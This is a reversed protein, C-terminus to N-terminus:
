DVMIAEYFIDLLEENAYYENGMEDLNTKALLYFYNHILDALDQNSLEAVALM